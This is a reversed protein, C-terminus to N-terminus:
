MLFKFDVLRDGGVPGPGTPPLTLLQVGGQASLNIYMYLDNNCRSQTTSHQNPCMCKKRKREKEFHGRLRKEAEGISEVSIQSDSGEKVGATPTRVNVLGLTAHV